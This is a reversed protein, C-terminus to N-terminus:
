LDMYVIQTASLASLCAFVGAAYIVARVSQILSILPGSTLSVIIQGVFIMSHLISVDTGVGRIQTSTIQVGQKQKFSGKGHYQALILFPVTCATAYMIGSTFSVLIVTVRLPWIALLVMGLSFIGLGGIYVVRARFTSSSNIM